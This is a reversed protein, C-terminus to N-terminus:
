LNAVIACVVSTGFAALMLCMGIGLRVCATPRGQWNPGNRHRHGASRGAPPGGIGDLTHNSFTTPPQSTMPFETEPGRGQVEPSPICTSAVDGVDPSPQAPRRRDGSERFQLGERLWEQRHIAEFTTSQSEICHVVHVAIHQGSCRSNPPISQTMLLKHRSRPVDVLINLAVIQVINRHLRTATVARRKARLCQQFDRSALRPESLKGCTEQCSAGTLPVLMTLPWPSRLTALVLPSSTFVRKICSRLWRPTLRCMRRGTRATKGHRHSTTSAVRSSMESAWSCLRAKSPVSLCSLSLPRSCGKRAPENEWPSKIHSRTRNRTTELGNTDSPRGGRDHPGGLGQDGWMEDSKRPRDERGRWPNRTRERVPTRCRRSARQTERIERAFPAFLVAPRM